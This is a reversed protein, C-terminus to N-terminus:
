IMKRNKLEEYLKDTLADHFVDLIFPGAEQAEKITKAIGQHFVSDLLKEVQLKTEPSSDKLYNPLITKRVEATQEEKTQPKIIPGLTQKVLEKEPLNKYEPLNRKESIERGLREIDAELAGQEFNQQKIDSM